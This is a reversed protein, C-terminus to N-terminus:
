WKRFCIEQKKNSGYRKKTGHYRKKDRSKKSEVKLERGEVNSGRCEVFVCELFCVRHFWLSYFIQVSFSTLYVKLAICMNVVGFKSKYRMLFSKQFILFCIPVYAYMYRLLLTRTYVDHYPVYLRGPYICDGSENECYKSRILLNSINVHKAM